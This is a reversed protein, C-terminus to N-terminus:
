LCCLIGRKRMYIIIILTFFLLIFGCSVSLFLLLLTPFDDYESEGSRGAMQGPDIMMMM